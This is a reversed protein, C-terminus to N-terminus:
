WRIVERGGEERRGERGGERGERGGKWGKRGREGREERGGERRGGEERGGRECVSSVTDTSVVGGLANREGGGVRFISLTSAEFRGVEDM